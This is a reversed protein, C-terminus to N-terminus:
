PMRRLPNTQAKETPLSPRIDSNSSQEVPFGERGPVAGTLSNRTVSRARPKTREPRSSDVRARGSVAVQVFRWRNQGPHENEVGTASRTYVKRVGKESEGEKERGCATKFSGQSTEPPETKEQAARERRPQSGDAQLPRVPEAGHGGGLHHGARDPYNDVGGERVRPAPGSAKEKERGGAEGCGSKRYPGHPEEPDRDASDRRCPDGRSARHQVRPSQHSRGGRRRVPGASAVRLSFARLSRSASRRYSTSTIRSM